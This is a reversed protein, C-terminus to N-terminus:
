VIETCWKCGEKERKKRGSVCKTKWKIQARACIIAGKYARVNCMCMKARKRTIELQLRVDEHCRQLHWDHKKVVRIKCFPRQFLLLCEYLSKIFSITFTRSIEESVHMKTKIILSVRYRMLFSNIHNKTRLWTTNIAQSRLLMSLRKWQECKLHKYMCPLM